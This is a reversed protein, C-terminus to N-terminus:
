IIIADHEALVARLKDTNVEPVTVGDALAMAAATGAAEGTQNCNVMVRIAGYAGRDADILRGAVLVNRAGKPVLSRYPIQYFTPDKEIPERWRGDVRPEGPVVYEQRGDLYRFTLGGKTSHHVDVRYSGNAIADDFRVGHLVEEETLTHLCTAHRTERVGITAPLASLTAGCCDDIEDRIIDMIARIQRRGEIEAVTLSDADSCDAEPVRTGAVMLEDPHGCVPAEWMFGLPVRGRYKEGFVTQRIRAAVAPSAIGRIRACTTPPQLDPWVTYPLGARAILDGDGTADVLIRARIARRGTKDEVIAVSVVGDEVVPAVFRTHLMPRVRHETVLEDLEIKLEETNLRYAANPGPGTQVADRRALRELVHATLGAIIPRQGGADKLSHWINVLGATAVGGFFGNAEVVAASAGQRAAAVAAFVGTCSGGVVCVDVDAAVPVERQPERITDSM